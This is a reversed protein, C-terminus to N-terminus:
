RRGGPRGRVVAAASAGTHKTYRRRVRVPREDEIDGDRLLCANCAFELAMYEESIWVQGCDKAPIDQRLALHFAGACRNCVAFCHETTPDSCVQCRDGIALGANM